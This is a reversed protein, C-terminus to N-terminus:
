GSLKPPSRASPGTSRGNSLRCARALRASSRTPPSRRVGNLMVDAARQGDVTQYGTVEVGAADTAVLFLSIGAGDRDTGATRASVILWDASDGYLAVCKHGTLTFGDGAAIAPPWM